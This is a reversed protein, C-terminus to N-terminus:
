STKLKKVSTNPFKLKPKLKKKPKTKPNLVPKWNKETETKFYFVPKWIKGNRKQYQKRNLTKFPKYRNRFDTELGPSNCNM